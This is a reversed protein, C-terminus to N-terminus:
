SRVVELSDVNGKNRFPMGMKRFLCERKGFNAGYEKRLFTYISKASSHYRLFKDKIIEEFSDTKKKITRSKRTSVEKAEKEFYRKVTRPDCDYQRAVTAYCIKEEKRMMYMAELIDKRM